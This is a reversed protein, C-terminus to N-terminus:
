RRSSRRVDDLVEALRQVGAGIEAESLAGHGLLLEARRAGTLYSGRTDYLGVDARRAGDTLSTIM